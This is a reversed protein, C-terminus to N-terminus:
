LNPLNNIIAEAGINGCKTESIMFSRLQPLGEALKVIGENGVNNGRIDLTTIHKM